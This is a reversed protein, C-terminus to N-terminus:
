NVTSNLELMSFPGAQVWVTSSLSLLQPCVTSDESHPRQAASHKCIYLIQESIKYDTENVWRCKWSIRLICGLCRM